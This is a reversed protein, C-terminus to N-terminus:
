RSKENYQKLEECEKRKKKKTGVYRHPTRRGWDAGGHSRSDLVSIGHHGYTGERSVETALQSSEIM